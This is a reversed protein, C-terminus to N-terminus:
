PWPRRQYLGVLLQQRPILSASLRPQPVCYRIITVNMCMQGPVKLFRLLRLRNM